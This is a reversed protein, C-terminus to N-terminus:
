LRRIKLFKKKYDNATLGSVLKFQRNFHSVNNYGSRYAIEGISQDSNILLKCANLVRIENIFQSYTKHTRSKFYRCFSSVTLNALGAVKEMDVDSTFNKMAFSIVQNLRETDLGNVANLYGPSSLLEYEETKAIADLTALFLLLRDIGTATVVKKVLASIRQHDRGKILLGQQGLTFLNKIHALEPLDFFGDMLANELFHIVYVDVYLEENNQYFDNDNKWVHPLDSSIFLLDGDTFNGIHNGMFRIGYSKEVYIIEYEPHYHWPYDM